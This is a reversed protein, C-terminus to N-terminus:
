DRKGFIQVQYIGVPDSTSASRITVKVYRAKTDVPFKDPKRTQGSASNQVAKTYNIGDRSLEIDYDYWVGDKEWGVFVANLNYEEGLDCAWWQPLNASGAIWPEGM